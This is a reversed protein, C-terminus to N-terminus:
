KIQKRRKIENDFDRKTLKYGWHQLVQRIKPSVSEDNWKTKRRIIQTVLFRMFRGRSGALGKWRSIQRNDDPGRKGRYFDCYWHVWGYPNEQHIWQKSEWFELSTGVKVKYKNINVDYKSRSLHDEPINKWWSKPYQKHVNNYKTKTIRSYIPRWYTGGFSGLLFIDRPTLNPKFDPHDKFAITKYRKQTKRKNSKSYDRM